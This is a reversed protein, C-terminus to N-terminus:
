STHIGVDSFGRGQVSAFTMACACRLHRAILMHSLSLPARTEFDVFDCCDLGLATLELLQSNYVNKNTVVSIMLKGRYLWLPQTRNDRSSHVASRGREFM